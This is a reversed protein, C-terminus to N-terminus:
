RDILTIIMCYNFSFTSLCLLIFYNMKRGDVLPTKKKLRRWTYIVLSLKSINFSVMLVWKKLYKNHVQRRLELNASSFFFCSLFDCLLVVRWKKQKKTSIPKASIMIALFEKEKWQQSQFPRRYLVLLCDLHSNTRYRQSNKTENVCYINTKRKEGSRWWIVSVIKLRM